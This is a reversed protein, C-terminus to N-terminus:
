EMHSFLEIHVVRLRILGIVPHHNLSCCHCKWLADEMRGCSAQGLAGSGEEPPEPGLCNQSGSGSPVRAGNNMALSVLPLSRM